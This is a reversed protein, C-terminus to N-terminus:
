TGERETAPQAKARLARIREAMPLLELQMVDLTATDEQDGCRRCVVFGGQLQDVTRLICGEMANLYARSVEVTDPHPPAPRVRSRALDYGFRITGLNSGKAWENRAANEDEETLEPVEGGQESLRDLEAYASELADLIDDADNEYLCGLSANSKRFSAIEEATIRHATM